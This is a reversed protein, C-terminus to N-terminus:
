LCWGAQREFERYNDLFYRIANAPKAPVGAVDFVAECLREFSGGRGPTINQRMALGALEGIFMAYEPQTATRGGNTGSAPRRELVRKAADNVALLSAGVHGIHPNFYPVPFLADASDSAPLNAGKLLHDIMFADGGDLRSLADSLRLALEEVEKLVATKQRVTYLTRVGNSAFERLTKTAIFQVAEIQDPPFGLEVCLSQLAKEKISIM